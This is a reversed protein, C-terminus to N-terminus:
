KRILRQYVMSGDHQQIRVIYMGAPVDSLDLQSVEAPFTKVKEGPLNWLEIRSPKQDSQLIVTQDAPNPFLGFPPTKQISQTETTSEYELYLDDLWLKGPPNELKNKSPFLIKLAFHTPINPPCEDNFPVSFATFTDTAVSFRQIADGCVVMSNTHTFINGALFGILPHSQGPNLSTSDPHYKYYGGFRIPKGPLPFFSIDMLGNQTETITLTSNQSHSVMWSFRNTSPFSSSDIAPTILLSYQGSHADGSRFYYLRNTQQHVQNRGVWHKPELFPRNGSVSDWSEFGGNPLPLISQASIQFFRIFFLASSIWCTRMAYLKHHTEPEFLAPENCKGPIQFFSPSGYVQKELSQNAGPL